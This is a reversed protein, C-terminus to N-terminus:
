WSTYGNKETEFRSSVIVKCRTSFEASLFIGEDIIVSVRALQQVGGTRRPEPYHRETPEFDSIRHRDWISIHWARSIVCCNEHFSIGIARSENVTDGAIKHCPHTVLALDTLYWFFGAGEVVLLEQALDLCGIIRCSNVLNAGSLRRRRRRRRLLSKVGLGVLCLLEFWVPDEVSGVFRPLLHFFHVSHVSSCAIGVNYAEPTRNRVKPRTGTIACFLKTLSKYILFIGLPYPRGYLWDQRM